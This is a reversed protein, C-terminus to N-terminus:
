AARRESQKWLGATVGERWLAIVDKSFETHQDALSEYLKGISRAAKKADLQQMITSDCSERKVMPHKDFMCGGNHRLDFAHDVFVSDSLKGKLYNLPALAIAAWKKGGISSSWGNGNFVTVALELFRVPEALGKHRLQEAAKMQAMRRAKDEGSWKPIAKFTDRLEIYAASVNPDDLLKRSYESRSAHRLEGAAAIVLYTCLISAVRKHVMQRLRGVKHALSSKEAARAMSDSLYFDNLLTNANYLEDMHGFDLQGSRDGRRGSDYREIWRLYNAVEGSLTAKQIPLIGRIVEGTDGSVSLADNQLLQRGASNRASRNQILLSDCGVVAPINLSRAVVAAHSTEGGNATVIASAVLMGPLDEPSTDSRVLIVPVGSKALEVAHASTFVVSGVAAGHSAPLGKAFLNKRHMLLQKADFVARTLSSRESATLATIAEKPMQEGSWVRHVAFTAAAHASRKAKRCQLLYLKGREVTFEVDVADRYQEDLDLVLAKLQRYVRPNWDALAKISQPTRSGSVVDEGQANPLFEGFIGSQGTKVDRSFVVGTCSDEGMNGFVMEQITVATGQWHPLNHADRYVRARESEWSRFVAIIASQLQQRATEMRSHRLYYNDFFGKVQRSRCDAAFSEGGLKRLTPMIEETLGVNLLTDMMGPMSHEAGSRVSLLLPNEASGFKKGTRKELLSLCREFHWDFRSPYKRHELFARCVGTPITFGYPVPLGQQTMEALSLGKGGRVAATMSREDGEDFTYALQHSRDSM